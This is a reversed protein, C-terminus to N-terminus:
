VNHLSLKSYSIERTKMYFVFFFQHVTVTIQTFREELPTKKRGARDRVTELWSEKCLQKIFILLFLLMILTSGAEAMGIVWSREDRTPKQSEVNGFKMLNSKITSTHKGPVKYVRRLAISCTDIYLAKYSLDYRSDLVVIVVHSHDHKIENVYAGSVQESRPPLSFNLIFIYTELSIRVWVVGTWARDRQNVILNLM